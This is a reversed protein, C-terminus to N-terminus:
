KRRRPNGSARVGHRRLGAFVDFHADRTFVSCGHVQAHAATLVDSFPVRRAAVGPSRGLEVAQFWVEATTSLLRFARLRSQLYQRQGEQRPSVLLEYVVPGAIVVSGKRILRTVELVDSSTEGSLFEIWLHSDVLVGADARDTSM